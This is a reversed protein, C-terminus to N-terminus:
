PAPKDVTPAGPAGDDIPGIPDDEDYDPDVPPAPRFNEPDEPEVDPVPDFCEALNAFTYEATGDARMVRGPQDVNNAPDAYLAPAAEIVTSFNPELLPSDACSLAVMTPPSPAPAAVVVSVLGLLLCLVRTV